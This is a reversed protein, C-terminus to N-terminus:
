AVVLATPIHKKHVCLWVCLLGPHVDSVIPSRTPAAPRLVESSCLRCRSYKSASFLVGVQFEAGRNGDAMTEGDALRIASSRPFAAFPSVPLINPTPPTPPPAGLRVKEGAWVGGADFVRKQKPQSAAAVTRRPSNSPCSETHQEIIHNRDCPGSDEARCRRM